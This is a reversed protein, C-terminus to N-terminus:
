LIWLHAIQAILDGENDLFGTLYPSQLDNIKYSLHFNSKQKDEESLEFM